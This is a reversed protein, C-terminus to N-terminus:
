IKSNLYQKFLKATTNGIARRAEKSDVLEGAGETLVDMIMTSIVTRMHAIDPEVGDTTLAGIIHTLRMPTVWELAIAKAEELVKQKATDVPRATRTEKFEARKHKALVREGNNLRVEFPPRIVIGEMKRPETIGRLISITSDRDRCADLAKILEERTNGSVEWYPTFELGLQNVLIEATPVDLWVGSHKVEFATFCPSAGYSEKMGQMKGGYAEGFVTVAANPELVGITTEFAIRLKDQDFCTLFKEHKEGGSFFRLTDGNWSVHASTGHIKELAYVRRFELITQDKYLNPIKRYGM